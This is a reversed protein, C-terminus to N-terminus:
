RKRKIKSKSIPERKIKDFGMEKQLLYEEYPVRHIKKISSTPITEKIGYWSSEEHRVSPEWLYPHGKFIPHPEIEVEFEFVIAEKNEDPSAHYLASAFDTAVMFWNAGLREEGELGKEKISDIHKEMTGHYVTIKKM